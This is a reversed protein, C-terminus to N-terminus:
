RLIEKPIESILVGYGYNPDSSWVRKASFVLNNYKSRNNLYDFYAQMLYGGNTLYIVSRKENSFVNTTKKQKRKDGYNDNRYKNWPYQSDLNEPLSKAADGMDGVVYINGDAARYSVLKKRIKEPLRKHIKEPFTIYNAHLRIDNKKEGESLGYALYGVNIELKMDNQEAFKKIVLIGQTTAVAVDVGVKGSPQLHSMKSLMTLVGVITDGSALCDEVIRLSADSSAQLIPNIVEFLQQQYDARTKPESFGLTALRAIELAQPNTSGHFIRLSFDKDWWHYVPNEVTGTAQSLFRGVTFSDEKGLIERLFSEPGLCSSPLIEALDTPLSVFFQGERDKDLAPDFVKQRDKGDGYVPLEEIGLRSSKIQYILSNEDVSKIGNTM